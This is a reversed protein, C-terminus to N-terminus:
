ETVHQPLLCIAYISSSSRFPWRASEVKDEKLDEPILFLFLLGNERLSNTGHTFLRCM